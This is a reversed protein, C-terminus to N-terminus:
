QVRVRYFKQPASPTVTFPSAASNNTTWPGLLNTAELLAGQSWTLIFNAGSPQLGLNVAPPTGNGISGNLYLQKIQAFNLSYNFVAVEDMSGQFTRTASFSDNGIRTEGSFASAGHSHNVSASSLGNTNYLYIVANTPTVVLAVFSWRNAPPVLGSNWGYTGSDDNWTYGLQTGGTNYGFGSTTGLGDRCFVLGSSGTQTNTPYIWATFTATASNLNLAPLSVWSNIQGDLTIALNSGDFGAFPPNPVGSVGLTVAPQYTGDLANGSSDAATTGSIENLRWYGFPALSLVGQNYNTATLIFLSAV